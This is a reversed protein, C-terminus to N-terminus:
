GHNAFYKKREKTFHWWPRKKGDKMYQVAALFTDCVCPDHRKGTKACLQMYLFYPDCGILDSPTHIGLIAFDKVMAPGINPIDQLRKPRLTAM